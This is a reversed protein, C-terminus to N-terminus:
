DSSPEQQEPSSEPIPLVETSEKSLPRKAKKRSLTERAAVYSGDDGSRNFDYSKEEEDDYDDPNM